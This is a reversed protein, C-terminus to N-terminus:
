KAIYLLLYSSQAQETWVLPNVARDWEEKAQKHVEVVARNVLLHFFFKVMCYVGTPIVWETLLM